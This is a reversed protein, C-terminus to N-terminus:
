RPAGYIVALVAASWALLDVIFVRDRLMEDTPSEALPRHHVLYIFRGVGIAVFPTTFVMRQTGFFRVTHPALAYLVYSVTTLVALSWIAVRLHGLRYGKLVARQKTAADGATALEHARKGFGLFCALLGSCVLLWLSAEVHIALAGAVVRLLFGLAIVLVDVFPVRKLRLSYAVNLAFYGLGAAAFWPSLLLSLGLAVGVLLVAAARAVGLPLQGSAIPRLRKRPHARDKEVDVIDNLVYVGGSLLWFCLVALAVRGLQWPDFLSKSFILPAAVFLSKVWQHPRLTKFLAYPLTVTARVSAM